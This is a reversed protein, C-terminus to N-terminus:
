DHDAGGVRTVLMVQKRIRREDDPGQYVIGLSDWALNPIDSIPVETFPNRLKIPLFFPRKEGQTWGIVDIECEYNSLLESSDDIMASALLTNPEEGILVITIGVHLDFEKSYFTNTKTQVVARITNVKTHDRNTVVERYQDPNFVLRGESSSVRLGRTKRATRVNELLVHVDTRDGSALWSVLLPDTDVAWGEAAPEISEVSISDISTPAPTDVILGAPSFFYVILFVIMAGGVKLARGAKITQLKPITGAIGAAALALVIRFVTYQFPSIVPKAVAIAVVIAIFIFGFVYPAFRRFSNQRSMISEGPRRDTRKRNRGGTSHNQSTSEGTTSRNKRSVRKSGPLLLRGNPHAYISFAAAMGGLKRRAECAAAGFTEGNELAAYFAEAFASALGDSVTWQPGVFAGCGAEIWSPAWGGLRTRAWGSQAMQCANLFVLPRNRRVRTGVQGLLDTPRWARGDELLFSARQPQDPVLKGHGVFHVLDLDEERLKQELREFTASTVSRDEIACRDALAALLRAERRGHSLAKMGLPAEARVVALRSVAISAPPATEGCLWRTLQFRLCWFDDNIVAELDSDDYPKVIEWPIWSEASIIHLKNVQDRFKRYADKMEPTFLDRYLERGLKELEPVIEDGFVPSGDTTLGAQLKELGEFLNAQYEEPEIEFPPGLIRRRTYPVKDTPSDLTYRLHKRGDVAAVDVYIELDARPTGGDQSRRASGARDQDPELEKM